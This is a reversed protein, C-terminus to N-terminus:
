ANELSIAPSVTLIKSEKIELVIHLHKRFFCKIKFVSILWAKPLSLETFFSEAIVHRHQFFENIAFSSVVTFKTIKWLLTNKTFREIEYYLRLTSRSLNRFFWLIEPKLTRQDSYM